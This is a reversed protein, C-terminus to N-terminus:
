CLKAILIKKIEQNDILTEIIKNCEDKAVGDIAASIDFSDIAKLKWYNTVAHGVKAQFDYVIKGFSTLIYKGNQRKILEAKILASIRSYYQKRTLKLSSILIDGGSALAITNFLVISKDDSIARLINPVSM